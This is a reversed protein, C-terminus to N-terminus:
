RHFSSNKGKGYGCESKQSESGFGFCARTEGERESVKRLGWKTPMEHSRRPNRKVAGVAIRITSSMTRGGIDNVGALDTAAAVASGCVGGTTAGVSVM